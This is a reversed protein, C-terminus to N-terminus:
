DACCCRCCCCHTLTTTEAKRLFLRLRNTIRPTFTRSRHPSRPPPPVSLCENHTGGCRHILTNLCLPTGQGRAMHVYMHRRCRANDSVRTDCKNYIKSSIPWHIFLHKWSVSRQKQAAQCCHRLQLYSLFHHAGIQRGDFDYEGQQQWGQILPPANSSNATKKSTTPGM